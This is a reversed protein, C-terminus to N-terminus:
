PKPKPKPKPTAPRQLALGAAPAAAPKELVITLWPLPRHASSNVKLVRAPSCITCHVQLPPLLWFEAKVGTEPVVYVILGCAAPSQRSTEPADVAPLAWTIWHGHLPWALWFNLTVPEPGKWIAALWEPLHTAGAPSEVALSVPRTWSGQVLAAV